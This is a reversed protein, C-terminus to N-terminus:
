SRGRLPLHNNSPAPFDDAPQEAIARIGAQAADIQEQGDLILFETQYEREGGHELWIMEGRERASKAGLVHHTSPEIGLAYQGAQMNQWQYQCPFQDKRTTIQLGLGLDDNVVAVPVRGDADAGM